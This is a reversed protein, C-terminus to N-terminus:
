NNVEVLSDSSKNISDAGKSNSSSLEIEKSDTNDSANSSNDVNTGLAMELAQMVVDQNDQIVEQHKSDLWEDYNLGKVRLLKEAFQKRNKQEKTAM